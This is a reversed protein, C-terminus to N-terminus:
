RNKGRRPDVGQFIQGFGGGSHCCKLYLRKDKFSEKVVQGAKSGGWSPDSLFGLCM